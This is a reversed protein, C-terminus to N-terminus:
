SRCGPSFHRPCLRGGRYPHSTATGARLGVHGNPAHDTSEGQMGIEFDAEASGAHLIVDWLGKGVESQEEAGLTFGGLADFVGQVTDAADRILQRNRNAMNITNVVYHTYCICHVSALIM